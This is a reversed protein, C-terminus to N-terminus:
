KNWYYDWLFRILSYSKGLQSTDNLGWNYSKYELTMSKAAIAAKTQPRYRALFAEVSGDARKFDGAYWKFIM